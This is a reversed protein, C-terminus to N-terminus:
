ETSEGGSQPAMAPPTDGSQGLYVVSGDPQIEFSWYARHICGSPCDGWGKSFALKNKEKTSMATQINDGDGVVGEPEAMRIGEVEALLRAMETTNFYRSSVLKLTPGLAGERYGEIKLNYRSTLQNLNLDETSIIGQKWRDKWACNAELVVMVEHLSPNPHTHITSIQALEPNKQILAYIKKLKDLYFEIRIEPLDAATVTGARGAVLDRLALRAADDRYKKLIEAPIEEEKAVPNKRSKGGGKCGNLTSITLLALLLPILLFFKKM